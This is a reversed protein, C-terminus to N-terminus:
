HDMKHLKLNEISLLLFYKKPRMCSGSIAGSHSFCLLIAESSICFNQPIGRAPTLSDLSGPSAPSEGTKRGSLYEQHM